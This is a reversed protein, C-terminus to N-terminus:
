GLGALIRRVIRDPDLGDVDIVLGGLAEFTPDRRAAQEALFDAPRDGYAPRHVDSDFRTALIAPDARLWVTAVDPRLLALLCADVDAVSAAASVVNPGPDALAALLQEAERAHMADVGEEDRLERVTRGTAATIDLDSDRWTWGLEDALRRGVTTKGVGMLGVLVLHRTGPRM